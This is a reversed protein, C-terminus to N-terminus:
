PTFGQAVSGYWNTGDACFTYIDMKGATATHTPAGATGWKVGTFTLTGDGTSAAQKAYLTFSKGATATPMTVTCATSATLTLTQVTGSSLSITTSSTVTGIAVVSETYDTITAGTLTKNSLSQTDTTGVVTGSPATVTSFASTGNGVLLGTLTTAGSGGNGVPLTGTVGHSNNASGDFSVASTSALNTQFTRSTTLTAASGTTNQNLTPFTCNTLTGSSPTGLAGGPAIYDTGAAANAFGGSSAKLISTGSTAPAYDTGSTASSFGGSGNGKLISSGSTAPAFDTGSTATGLVGSTLKAIGSGTARKLTKGATGSFLVVESDVSSSTNTSADGSGSGSPTNWTGDGRLYTSSSATGSASIGGVPLGTCNTLTGSAPTGLAPATLTPSTLTKNTLTQTGSLTVVEVGNAQVVGTGKTVLNIGANTDSGIVAFGPSSGAIAAEARMYNVASATNGIRFQTATDSSFVFQGNGKTGLYFALNTDAGVVSLVPSGSGTATTQLSLYNVANASNTFILAPNGNADKISGSIWPTTLVPSTLTKNTLTQAGTLTVAEVGNIKVVGTGKGALLLDINPDSGAVGLSASTGSAANTAVLYNALTGALPTLAISLKRGSDYIGATFSANDLACYSLTGGVLKNALVTNNFTWHGATTPTNVLATYLLSAGADVARVNNGGSSQVTILASSFNMVHFQMGATVGTTPLTVLQATSGTFQQIPTSAATLTVTTGSTVTTTFGPAFSNATINANADRLALTSVTAATAVGTGTPIGNLVPTTLTKSGLTETGALTAFDNDSLATNFQATTGSLTVSSLNITGSTPAGLAGGPAVYDTGATANAFGGSSAKLISTGSTAPAYDTGSTASSFGGSGNGKLLSTGSTAPAYDTGSAAASFGGSGNGKLIASGSTAPAYDTGATAISLVGTTTTNKVLGTSLAGLFQAASLGADTTGQVIFKNAFAVAASGDVSNGALNRATTWKAASGTTNQNLTPFTNTGSTLDKNTLAVSAANKTSDSTNDVASLGVDAKVLVLDTKLQAMTRNAWAGAKRQLVDDNSPSLGVITTLNANLGQKGDLATQTATSVPKASDATNDVSGLGVDAKVLTLATKLSGASITGTLGAVSAVADTTDSKEWATGNYVAYDGVDFTINGAGLNRTGATGVRYVDGTSGTGNALTPSNTSANWVGQYEMISSPLQTVPVKGGGDLSAYGGAQGKNAAQEASDAKGLSTQVGSSLKGLTISADVVKGTTVSLDSPTRTDTLRSDSDPVAGIASRAEAQTAGAGIVAPKDTIGGWLTTGPPGTQGPPGTNGQPGRVQGVATSGPVPSVSLLDLETDSTEAGFEFSRLPNDRGAATARVFEVRYFLTSDSELNLVDTHAVLRVGSTVDGSPSVTVLEGDRIEAEVPILSIHQPPELTAGSLPVGSLVLPTFRVLRCSVAYEVGGSVATYLGTVTFRELEAM